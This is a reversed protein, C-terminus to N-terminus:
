AREGGRQSKKVNMSNTKDVTRSFLKNSAKKSMKRRRM